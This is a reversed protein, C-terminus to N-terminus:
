NNNTNEELYDSYYMWHLREGTIPHKGCSKSKTKDKCCEGIHNSCGFWERAEKITTFVQQTELCIVKKAKPNKDGKKAESLKEGWQRKKEETMNAHRETVVESIKESHQKKKEESMNAMRQKTVEGWQRKEEESKNAWIETKTERMKQKTAESCKGHGGRKSGSRRKNYGYRPDLTNYICMYMDELDLLDDGNYAVDFEKNIEFNEIGYKNISSKIHENDTYKAINGGYRTDFDNETKGFYMKGNVKNRVLYIYGYIEM